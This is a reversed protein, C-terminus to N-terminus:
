RAAQARELSELRGRMADNEARLKDSEAKLEKVAEVLVPILESYALAKEGGPGAGVVEPLVQEVEQALLGYHRGDPFGRDPYEATRWRFSHGSLHMVKGLADDIGHIDTKLRLDSPNWGGTAYAAGNVYLRYGSPDTAGIAVNGTGGQLTVRDGGQYFHLDGDAVHKYIAWIDASGDGTLKFNVEPNGTMAEVLVRPGNGLVHLKREPATTGLGINGTSFNGYILVNEPNRGNAIFLRNNGVFGYGSEYGLFVNGDGDTQYGARLGVAVNSSGTTGVTGSSSGGAEYGVYTNGGGSSRYQGAYAGCCVSGSGVTNMRGADAGLFVNNTGGGSTELGALAGVFTNRFGQTNNRGADFGIFVNDDGYNMYGAFAGAFVNRGNSGEPGSAGGRGASYGLLVNDNGLHDSGASYGVCTSREPGRALDWGAGGGVFLNDTGPVVLQMQGKISFGSDSYVGGSAYVNGLFDGAWSSNSAGVVGPGNASAGYVGYGNTSYGNVGSGDVSNGGVGYGKISTGDVGNGSDGQGYIGAGKTSSGFVGPGDQSLGRVGYGGDSYGAVGIGDTGQGLIAPDTSSNSGAWIAIRAAESVMLRAGGGSNNILVDGTDTVYVADTPDGDAADLSHGDGAGVNDTEDAFGAPVGKLKTWDVPDGLQNVTGDGTNLEPEAYYRDDHEHSAVAFNAAHQGDLLDADLGSGPGGVIMTATISSAEGKLVFEGFGHGGLSDAGSAHGAGDARFAYPVSVMERRPLLIEGDVEIELWWLGDFAVDIQNVNGLTTSFVGSSDADVAAMEWWLLNGGSPVDYIRLVLTHPGALPVGTAGDTIRGQYNIKKPVGALAIGAALVAVTVVLEVGVRVKCRTLM